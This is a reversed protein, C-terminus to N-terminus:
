SPVSERPCPRRTFRITKESPGFCVNTGNRLLGRHPNEDGNVPEGLGAGTPNFCQLAL